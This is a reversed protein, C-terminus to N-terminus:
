GAAKAGHRSLRERYPTLAHTTDSWDSPCAPRRRASGSGAAARGRASGGDWTMLKFGNWGEPQAGATVMVAGDARPEGSVVPLYVAATTTVKADLVDCDAATLGRILAQLLAEGTPRADRGVSLTLKDSTTGKREALWLAFAYGLREAMELTIAGAGEAPGAIEGSHILNPWENGM